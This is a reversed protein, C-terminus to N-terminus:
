GHDRWMLVHVPSSKVDHQHVALAADVCGDM